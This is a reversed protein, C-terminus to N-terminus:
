ATKFSIEIIIDITFYFLCKDVIEYILGGILSYTYCLRSSDEISAVTAATFRGVLLREFYYYRGDLFIHKNKM